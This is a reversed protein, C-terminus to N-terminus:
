RVVYEVWPEPDDHLVIALVEATNRYAVSRGFSRAEQANSAWSTVALGPPDPNETGRYMLVHMQTGRAGALGPARVSDTLYDGLEIPDVGPATWVVRGM